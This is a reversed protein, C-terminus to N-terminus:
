FSLYSIVFNKHKLNIKSKHIKKPLKISYIPKDLYIHHNPYFIISFQTKLNFFDVLRL